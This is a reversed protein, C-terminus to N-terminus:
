KMRHAISNWTHITSQPAVPVFVDALTTWHKAHTKRVKNKPSAFCGNREHFYYYLCVCYLWAHCRSSKNKALQTSRANSARSRHPWEILHNRRHESNNVSQWPVRTRKKVCFENKITGFRSYFCMFTEGYKSKTKMKTQAVSLTNATHRLDFVCVCFTQYRVLTCPGCIDFPLLMERQNTFPVISSVHVSHM